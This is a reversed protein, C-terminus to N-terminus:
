VNVQVSYDILFPDKLIVITMEKGGTDTFRITKDTSQFSSSGGQGTPMAKYSGTATKEFGFFMPLYGLNHEVIFEKIVGPSPNVSHILPSRARSHVVYDFLDTSDISKGEKAIKFVHDNDAPGSLAGVKVQPAKFEKTIDLAFIYFYLQAKGNTSPFASNPQFQLKNNTIEMNGDGLPGMYESRNQVGVPGNNQWAALPTNAFYWFFPIFGLDHEAVLNNVGINSTKYSGQKYIKLLPWLSSYILNEDGATKADFGKQALKIVPPNDNKSM